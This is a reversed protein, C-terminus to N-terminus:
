QQVIKLIRSETIESIDDYIDPYQAMLYNKANKKFGERYVPNYTILYDGTNTHCSASCANGLKELLPVSEAKIRADLERSKSDHMAKEKKL